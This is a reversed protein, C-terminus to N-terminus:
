PGAKNRAPTYFPTTWKSMRLASHRSSTSSTRKSRYPAHRPATPNTSSLSRDPHLILTYRRLSLCFVCKLGRNLAKSLVFRTQTMPGETADVVLAVGDVMSLIREVEGGFDAHGPTDVINILHRGTDTTPTYFVSTCKSLITIGRERELDNSDMMRDTHSQVAPDGGAALSPALPKLTGSQRLLQDVLTTKGHDVANVTLLSWSFYM